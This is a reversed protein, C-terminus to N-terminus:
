WIQIVYYCLRIFFVITYKRQNELEAKVRAVQAHGMKVIQAHNVLKGKGVRTQVASMERTTTTTMERQPELTKVVTTRAIVKPDV